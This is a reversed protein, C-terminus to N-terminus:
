ELDVLAVERGEGDLGGHGPGSSVETNSVM